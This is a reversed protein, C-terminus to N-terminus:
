TVWMLRISASEIRMYEAAAPNHWDGKPRINLRMRDPATTLLVETRLTASRAINAVLDMVALSYNCQPKDTTALLVLRTDIQAM